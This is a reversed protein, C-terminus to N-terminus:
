GTRINSAGCRATYRRRGSRPSVVRARLQQTIDYGYAEERALVALVLIDLVGKLLQEKSM